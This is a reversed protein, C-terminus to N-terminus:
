AAERQAPMPDLRFGVGIRNFSNIVNIMMTLNVQEQPTFQAALAQYVDDPARTESLRTLADTWGLAAKERPTFLASEHWADLLYIRLESEGRKRADRTHMDLCIVCGNIQSSRIKILEMLSPELGSAEVDAAFDLLPKMLKADVAFPNLRATM